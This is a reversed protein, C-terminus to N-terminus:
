HLFCQFCIILPHINLLMRSSQEIITRSGLSETMRAKLEKEM